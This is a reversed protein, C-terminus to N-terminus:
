VLRAYIGCVVEKGQMGFSGLNDGYFGREGIVQVDIRFVIDSEKANTSVILGAWDLVKTATAEFPLSELKRDSVVGNTQKLAITVTKINQLDPSRTINGTKKYCENLPENLSGCSIALLVLPFLIYCRWFKYITNM